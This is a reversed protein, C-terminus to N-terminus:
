VDSHPAKGTLARVYEETMMSCLRAAAMAQKIERKSYAVPSNKATGLRRRKILGKDVLVTFRKYEIHMMKLWLRVESAKLVDQAPEYARVAEMYGVQAYDAIIGGLQEITLNM